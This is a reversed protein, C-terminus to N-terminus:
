NEPKTIITLDRKKESGTAGAWGNLQRLRKSCARGAMCYAVATAVFWCSTTPSLRVSADAHFPFRRSTTSARVRYLEPPIDSTQPMGTGFAATVDFTTMTAPPPLLTTMEEGCERETASASFGADIGSTASIADERNVAFRCSPQASSCQKVNNNDSENSCNCNSSSNSNSDRDDGCSRHSSQSHPSYHYFSSAINNVAHLLVAPM